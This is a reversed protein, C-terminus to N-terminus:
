HTFAAGRSASGAMAMACSAFRWSPRADGDGAVGKRFSGVEQGSAIVQGKFVEPTEGGWGRHYCSRSLCSRRRSGRGNTRALHWAAGAGWGWDTSAVSQHELQWVLQWRGQYRHSGCHGLTQVDRVSAPRYVLCINGPPTRREGLCGGGGGGGVMVLCSLVVGLGAVSPVSYLVWGVGTVV